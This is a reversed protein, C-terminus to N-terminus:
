YINEVYVSGSVPATSQKVYFQTGIPLVFKDDFQANMNSQIDWLKFNRAPVIIKDMTVDDTFIMDGQTLNTFCVGRANFELPTGVPAFAGSIGGFALSRIEDFHARAVMTVDM